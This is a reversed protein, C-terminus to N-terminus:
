KITKIDVRSSMEILKQIQGVQFALKTKYTEFDSKCVWHNEYYSNSTTIKLLAVKLMKFPYRRKKCIICVHRTKM